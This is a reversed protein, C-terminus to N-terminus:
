SYKHPQLCPHWHWAPILSDENQWKQKLKAPSRRRRMWLGTGQLASGTCATLLTFPGQHERLAPRTSPSGESAKAKITRRHSNFVIRPPLLGHEQKQVSSKIERLIKKKLIKKKLGNTLCAMGTGWNKPWNSATFWVGPFSRWLCKPVFFRWRNHAPIWLNMTERVKIWRGKFEFEVCM